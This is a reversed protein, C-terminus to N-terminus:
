LSYAGGGTVVGQLDPSGAEPTARQGDIKGGYVSVRQGDLKGGHVLCRNKQVTQVNGVDLPKERRRTLLRCLIKSFTNAM